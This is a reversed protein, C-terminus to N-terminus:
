FILVFDERDRQSNQSDIRVKQIEIMEELVEICGTQTWSPAQATTCNENM